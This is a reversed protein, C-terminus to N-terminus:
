KSTRDLLEADSRNQVENEIKDVERAAKLHKTVEDLDRLVKRYSNARWSAFLIALGAVIYPMFTYALKLLAATIM